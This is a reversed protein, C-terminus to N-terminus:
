RNLGEPTQRRIRHATPDQVSGPVQFCLEQTRHRQGDDGDTAGCGGCGRRGFTSSRHRVSRMGVCRPAAVDGGRSRRARDKEGGRNILEKARGHLTLFGDHDISGLDGTRFWGDVFAARNADPNDLYGPMVTAGRVHVEGIEGPACTGHDSAVMVTGPSATGCTGRKSRGHSPINAAIQAAETLGYHELVPVGLARELGDQVDAGLPAGGSVVFRLSHKDRPFDQDRVHELISRHLTPGASYWTPSLEGFWESLALSSQSTPLAISGGTILPTLVTVKLGHSHYTPAVCLSRDDKTLGFWNQLRKAAALM